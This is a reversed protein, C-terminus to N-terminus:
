ERLGAKGPDDLLNIMEHPDERLDYLEGWDVGDYISLRYRRTVASRVRVPKEFGMAPEHGDEEILVASAGTAAPDDISAALDPLERCESSRRLAPEICFPDLSM